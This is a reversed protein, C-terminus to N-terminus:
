YNPHSEKSDRGKETNGQKKITVKEVVTKKCSLYGWAGIEINKM